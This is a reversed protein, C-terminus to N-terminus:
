LDDLATIQNLRSGISSRITLVNDVGNDLETEASNLGNTLNAQGTDGSSPANLTNILNAITTFISQNSSPKVTFSDNDAPAGQIDFQLGDFAITQGSTYANGTSVATSTTTDMVDYTTVGGTVHFMINYNDGTLATRDV